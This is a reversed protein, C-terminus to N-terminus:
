EENTQEENKSRETQMERYRGKVGERWRMDREYLFIAGFKRPKVVGPVCM